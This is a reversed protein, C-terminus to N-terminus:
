IFSDIKTSLSSISIICDKNSFNPCFFFVILITVELDIDSAIKRFVISTMYLVKIICHVHLSIIIIYIYISVQWQKVNKWKSSENRTM